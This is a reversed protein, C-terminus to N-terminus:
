VNKRFVNELLRVQSLELLELYPVELWRRVMILADDELLDYSVLDSFPYWKNAGIKSRGGTILKEAAVSMGMTGVAMLGKFSKGIIGAKKDNTPVTGHIQFMRTTEDIKIASIKQTAHPRQFSDGDTQNVPPTNDFLMESTPCGCNPCTSAKDSFEKGCEICKILAM